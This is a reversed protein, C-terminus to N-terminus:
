NLIDMYKKYTNEILGEASLVNFADIVKKVTEDSTKKSFAM